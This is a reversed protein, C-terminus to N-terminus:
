LRLLTDGELRGMALEHGKRTTCACGVANGSRYPTSDSCFNVWHLATPSVLAAVAATKRAPGAPLSSASVAIAIERRQAFLSMCSLLRSISPLPAVKCYGHHCTCGLDAAEESGLGLGRKMKEDNKKEDCAGLLGLAVM